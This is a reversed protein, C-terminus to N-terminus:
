LVGEKHIKPIGNIRPTMEFYPTLRIKTRDDLSYKKIVKKFERIVRLLPNSKLTKYYGSM